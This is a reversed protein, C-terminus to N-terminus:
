RQFPDLVFVPRYVQHFIATLLHLTFPHLTHRFARGRVAGRIAHSRTHLQRLLVLSHVWQALDGGEQNVSVGERLRDTTHWACQGVLLRRGGQGVGEGGRGEVCSAM